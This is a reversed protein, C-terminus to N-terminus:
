GAFLTTWFLNNLFHFTIGLVESFGTSDLHHPPSTRYAFRETPTGSVDNGGAGHHGPKNGRVGGREWRSLTNLVFGSCHHQDREWRSLTNLVFGSCHHQDREWRSRINLRSGQAIINSGRGSPSPCSGSNEMRLGRAAGEGAPLPTPHPPVFRIIGIHAEGVVWFHSFVGCNECETLCQIESPQWHRGFNQQKKNCTVIKLASIYVM